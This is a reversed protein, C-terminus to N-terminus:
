RQHTSTHLEDITDLCFATCVFLIPLFGGSGHEVSGCSKVIDGGGDGILPKCEVPGPLHHEGQLCGISLARGM